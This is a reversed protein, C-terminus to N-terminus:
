NSSGGTGRGSLASTSMCREVGESESLSLQRDTGLAANYADVEEITGFHQAYGTLPSTAYVWYGERVLRTEPDRWGKSKLYGMTNIADEHTM